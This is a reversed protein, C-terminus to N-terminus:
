NTTSAVTITGWVDTLNTTEPKYIDVQCNITLNINDNFASGSDTAGDNYNVTFIIDTGLGGNSGATGSIKCLVDLYNATYPSTDETLRILTQDTSLLDWFGIASGDTTLTAGTGTRGSTTFDLNMAALNTGILTIWNTEKVTGAAGTASLKLQLRGGANFFYRMKDADQFTVTRVQSFTTPNTANWTGNRTSDSTVSSRTNNFNARNNYATTINADLTSLYTIVDGAVPGTIGSGSGAQHTLITNLRSVLTSWQTATVLDGATVSSLTTTQGYGKDGSGVGWITNINRVTHNPTGSATGTAFENYHDDLILDGQAYAM